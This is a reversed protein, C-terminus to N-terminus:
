KPDKPGLEKIELSYASLIAFFKSVFSDTLRAVWTARAAFV